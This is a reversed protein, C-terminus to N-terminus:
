VLLSKAFDFPYSQLQSFISGYLNETSGADRRTYLTRAPRIRCVSELVEPHKAPSPSVVRLALLSHCYLLTQDVSVVGKLGVM